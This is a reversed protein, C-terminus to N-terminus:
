QRKSNNLEAEGNIVIGIYVGDKLLHLEQSQISQEDLKINLKIDNFVLPNNNITDIFNKYDNTFNYVPKEMASVVVSSLIDVFTNNSISTLKVGDITITKNKSDIIPKGSFYAVGKSSFFNDINFDIGIVIDEGSPYVDLGNIKTLYGSYNGLLRKELENKLTAYSARIPLNISFDDKVNAGLNVLPTYPPKDPKNGVALNLKAGLSINAILTDNTINFGSFDLTKPETILYIDPNASLKNVKHAFRWIKKANARLNIISLKNIDFVRLANQLPQEILACVSIKIGLLEIYCENLIVKVEVDDLSLVWNPNIKQNLKVALVLNMKVTKAVISTSVRMKVYFPAKLILYNRAISTSVDGTKAIFGNIKCDLNIGFKQICSKENHSFNYKEPIAGDIQKNLNELDIKIALSLNSIINNKIEPSYLVKPKNVANDFYIFFVAIVFLLISIIVKTKTIYNRM